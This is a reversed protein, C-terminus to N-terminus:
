LYKYTSINVLKNIEKIKLGVVPRLVMLLIDNEVVNGGEVTALLPWFM